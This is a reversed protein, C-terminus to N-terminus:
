AYGPSSTVHKFGWEEAFSSFEASAYQPGNDSVIIDAIGHRAFISKMERIVGCSTTDRLRKVEIYKSFYDVCLLFASGSHYFIDTDIKEWPRGPVEHQFFTEKQNNNRNENCTACRSVADEIQTSMGPWYLIDRGRAKCKVIVLHSEHIKNIM